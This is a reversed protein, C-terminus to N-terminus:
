EEMKFVREASGDDYIYILPTNRKFTTERGILDTIKILKRNPTAYFENIGVSTECLQDFFLWAERGADIDMNGGAGPWDHGGGQITYLWVEACSNEIGYKESSVSSGDSTNTNPLNATSLLQLGFLNKFFTMTEPISPYAGWGDLNNPDGDFYTVNDQTGHIEFISVESNPSCNDMIEQLIMGSVPAVARFTESAQCALMYCLDGGNSMGTCFVESPDLSYNTQLYTNLNVLYAVDDVTENNQFDYGVNFFTSGFSDETGQPYCVAFGFEDALSNFESYDMIGQASGSYGHCVFVLPCNAPATGPHYYIYDRQIGGDQITGYEVVQISQFVSNNTNDDDAGLGNVNSVTVDLQYQGSQTITWNDQHTFNYSGLSPITLGSFTQTYAMAGGLSWTIDFSSIIAAGSNSITGTIPVVSPADQTSNVSISSLNADLGQPEFVLVDDIAWGFVWGGNDNYHFAILVNSNGALVSLDVLQSDWSADDTGIIESLVVWTNGNNLSYEISAMESAGGFNGGDYYNEFQLAITVSGSLDLPPMILYDMSKDCDCDDDNSGIINGHSAISWWASEIMQSTGMNWGGDSANTTISWGAPFNGGEFDESILINQANIFSCNILAFLLPFTKM